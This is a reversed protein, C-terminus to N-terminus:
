FGFFGLIGGRRPPPATQGQRRLMEGKNVLANTQPITAPKLTYVFERDDRLTMPVLNETFFETGLTDWWPANMPQILTQTEYGDAILTIKRAGYYEFSRSVPSPGIEEDNVIVLAGPPNTRITYRREVCGSLACAIIGCLLPILRHRRDRVM